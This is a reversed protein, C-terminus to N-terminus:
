RADNPYARPLGTDQHLYRDRLEANSVEEMMVPHTAYYTKSFM